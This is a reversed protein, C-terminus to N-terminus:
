TVIGRFIPPPNNTYQYAEPPFFRTDLYSGPPFDIAYIPSVDVLQNLNSAYSPWLTNKALKVYCRSNIVNPIQGRPIPLLIAQYYSSATIGGTYTLGDVTLTTYLAGKMPGGVAQGFCMTAWNTLDTSFAIQIDTLPGNTINGFYNSNINIPIKTNNKYTVILRPSLTFIDSNISLIEYPLPRKKGILKGTGGGKIINKPM